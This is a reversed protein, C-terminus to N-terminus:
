IWSAEVTRETPGGDGTNITGAPEFLLVATGADAVPKHEVGRPVVVIQGPLLEVVRDRYHMELRGELVLFLEDEAEHSHWDFAGELRALKVEQGNLAAIVRPNWPKDLLALKDSLVIREGPVTVSM